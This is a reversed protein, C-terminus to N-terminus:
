SWFLVHLNNLTFCNTRFTNWQYLPEVVHQMYEVNELLSHSFTKDAAGYELV